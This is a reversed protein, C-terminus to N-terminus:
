LDHMHVFHPNKSTGIHCIRQSAVACPPMTQKAPVAHFREDEALELEFKVKSQFM